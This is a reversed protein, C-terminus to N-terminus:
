ILEGCDPHSTLSCKLASLAPLRNWHQRHPSRSRDSLLQPPHTPPRTPEVTDDPAVCIAVAATWTWGESSLMTQCGYVSFSFSPSLTTNTNTQLGAPTFHVTRRSCSLQCTHPRDTLQGWNGKLRGFVKMGRSIDKDCLLSLYLRRWCLSLKFCKFMLWSQLQHLVLLFM